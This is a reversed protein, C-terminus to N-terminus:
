KNQEKLLAQYEKNNPMQQNLDALEKMEEKTLDLAESIRRLTTASVRKKSMNTLTAQAIRTEYSLGAMSLNRDQCHKKIREYLIM